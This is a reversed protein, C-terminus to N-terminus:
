QIIRMNKMDASGASTHISGQIYTLGGNNTTFNADYGGEVTVSIDRNLVGSESLTVAQLQIVEGTAAADYAAQLADFYVPTGRNIKAYRFFGTGNVPIDLKLMSPASFSLEINGSKANVTTPSFSVQVSCGAAPALIGSCSSTMSFSSSDTGTLIAAGLTIADTGANTIIFTQLISSSGVAVSGFNATVPTSTVSYRHLRGLLNGVADYQYETITGNQNVQILRHATDYTYTATEAFATGTIIITWLMLLLGRVARM